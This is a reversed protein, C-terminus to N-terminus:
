WGMKEPTYPCSKRQIIGKEKFYKAAEGNTFELGNDYRISKLKTYFRNEVLCIFAKVAQLANIKCRLLQTWTSRRYDDVMTLFYNYGDYTPTHYPGWLDIHLLEFLQNTTTTSEPFHMRTQRAMPCIIYTFSQRSSFTVLTTSINRMKVFPVYGLRAHWLFETTHDHSASLSNSTYSNVTISCPIVASNTEKNSVFSNIVISPFSTECKSEVLFKIDSPVFHVHKYTFSHWAIHSSSNGNLLPRSM